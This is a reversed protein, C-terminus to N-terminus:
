GPQGVSDADATRNACLIKQMLVLDLWQGAKRGVQPMRATEQFGLAQHFAIAKPNAGSIGAVLVHIDDARAQTEIAQMLARGVGQGRAQTTLYITLERTQAYGPGARFPALAIYGLLVGEREAVQMQPGKDAIEACIQDTTKEVTTFTILTDRIIQNTIEAIAPADAPTAQRVIM